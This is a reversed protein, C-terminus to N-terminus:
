KSPPALRKLEEFWNQVLNLRTVELPKIESAARGILFRTGDPTIDYFRVPIIHTARCEFLLRPREASLTAGSRIGASMLQNSLSWYYLERGNPAWLPEGGGDNSVAIRKGPIPFSTVYVEYRGTENSTYALWRGDPSIEPHVVLNNTNLFPVAQRTDTRYVGIDTSKPNLELFALYKGDKSWSSTGPGWQTTFLQEMPSSGDAAISFVAPPGAKSYSFTIREGDPSWTLFTALGGSTLARSTGQVLNHIWVGANKGQAVYAIDKGDPSVRVCFFSKKGAEAVPEEKGRHDVWFLQCEPEPFTGGSAYVLSGSDSFAYQGAVSYNRSRNIAQAVGVVVPVAQGLIELRVPDFPVAMLRGEEMYVIHGTPVFRGDAGNAILVKRKGTELSLVEIQAEAGLLHPMTTILVAKGGPLLHPLRHTEEKSWDITTLSRLEGGGSKVSQLAHRSDTGVLIDGNPAWAAGMLEGFPMDCLSVPIGGALPIKRLKGQAWFGIWQGDPSFFPDMGGDTGPIATTEASAMSRLYLMPKSSSGDPRASFVLNKGDPSLAIETRIPGLTGRTLQLGPPLSIETRVVQAGSPNPKIRWIIISIAASVLLFVAILGAVLQLRTFRHGAANKPIYPQSLIETIEIRADAIDHLRERPDKQLCRRVLDRVRLPVTAPIKQWEPEKNLISALTDTITAGEFARKGTLCEYLVCGFAWIDTRRDANKGRAQDPSMYAATGLIMGPKTMSEAISDAADTAQSEIHLTKALGFDLIKVKDGDTLMVNGPKLDRHIVGKEHAAELGDAIQRCIDLTEKLPLPGKKLRAALTEGEVLELVLFRNGESEELGHIAGINAHNLSALLKAERELRALRESDGAFIDPLSKIAVDRSLREDWARYVEGMGGEGIKKRITYHLLRRGTLDGSAEASRDRALAQAALDIAPSEIFSEAEPQCALLSDIEKRLSEDGACAEELFVERGEPPRKLAADYIEEVQHWREKQMPKEKNRPFPSM